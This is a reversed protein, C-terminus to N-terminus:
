AALSCLGPRIKRETGAADKTILFDGKPGPKRGTVTATMPVEARPAKFTVTDGNKFSDSAM